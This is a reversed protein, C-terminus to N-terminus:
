SLVLCFASSFYKRTRSNVFYLSFKIRLTLKWFGAAKLFTPWPWCILVKLSQLAFITYCSIYMSVFPKIGQFLFFYLFFVWFHLHVIKLELFPFWFAKKTAKETSEEGSKIWLVRVWQLFFAICFENCYEKFIYWILKFYM